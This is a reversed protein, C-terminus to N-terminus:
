VLVSASRNVRSRAHSPRGEDIDGPEAFAPAVNSRVPLFRICNDLGQAHVRERMADVHVGRGILLFVLHTERRLLDAAGPVTEFERVRGLNGSHGVIFANELGL